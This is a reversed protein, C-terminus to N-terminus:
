QEKEKLTLLIEDPLENLEQLFYAKSSHFTLTSYNWISSPFKDQRNAYYDTGLIGEMTNFRRVSKVYGTVGADGATGDGGFLQIRSVVFVNEWAGKNTSASLAGYKNVASGPEVKASNVVVINKLVNNANAQAFLGITASSSNYTTSLESIGM